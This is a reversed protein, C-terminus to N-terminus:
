ELAERLAKELTSQSTYGLFSARIRGDRGVVVFTPLAEVKFLGGVRGNDIVVPYPITHATMFARIEDLTAGGGDSNIGVFSVGKPAFSRHVNELVPLMAVCPGCWTAWFDVLTVHGEMDRSGFTGGAADIRQLAFAPVPQGHRMPRLADLNRAAWVANGAAGALVGAATVAAIV